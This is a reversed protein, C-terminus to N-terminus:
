LIYDAMFTSYSLVILFPILWLWSWKSPMVELEVKVEEDIQPQIELIELKSHTRISHNDIHTNDLDQPQGDM